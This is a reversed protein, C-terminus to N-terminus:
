LESTHEESRRERIEQPLLPLIDVPQSRSRELELQRQFRSEEKERQLRRKMAQLLGKSLRAVFYHPAYNPTDVKNRRRIPQFANHTSIRCVDWRHGQLGVSS